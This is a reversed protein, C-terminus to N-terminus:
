IGDITRKYIEFVGNDHPTISTYEGQIKDTSKIRSVIFSINQTASVIKLSNSFGSPNPYYQNDIGDTNGRSRGRCNLNCMVATKVTKGAKYASFPSYHILLEGSFTSNSDLNEPIPLYAEIVGHISPYVKSEWTGTYNAANSLKPASLFSGM